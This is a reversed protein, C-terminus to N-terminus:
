LPVAKWECDADMWRVLVAAGFPALEAIRAEATNRTDHWELLPWAEGIRRKLVVGGRVLSIVFDPVTM